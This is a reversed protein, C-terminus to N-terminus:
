YRRHTKNIRRLGSFSTQGCELMAIVNAIKRVRTDDRKVIALGYIVAWRNPRTLRDFLAAAKPSAKLARRLDKPLTATSSSPYAADWRGDVKAAEVQALGRPAMRGEAILEQARTRNIESWNSKRRRPTFRTLFYGDDYTASQGDIWGNCL